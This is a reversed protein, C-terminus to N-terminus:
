AEQNQNSPFFILDDKSLWQQNANKQSKQGM